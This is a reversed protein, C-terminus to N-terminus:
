HNLIINYTYEGNDHVLIDDERFLLRYWGSDMPFQEVVDGTNWTEEPDESKLVYPAMRPDRPSMHVEFLQREPSTDDKVPKLILSTHPIPRMLKWSTKNGASRQHNGVM